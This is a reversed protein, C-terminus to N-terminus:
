SPKFQTRAGPTRTEPGSNTAAAHRRPGRHRRAPPPSNRNANGFPRGDATLAMV